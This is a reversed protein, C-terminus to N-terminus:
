ARRQARRIVGVVTIVHDWAAAIQMAERCKAIDRADWAYGSFPRFFGLANVMARKGTTGPSKASKM